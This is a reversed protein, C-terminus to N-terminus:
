KNRIRTKNSIVKGIKRKRKTRKSRYHKPKEYVYLTDVKNGRTPRLNYRPETINKTVENLTSIPMKDNVELEVNIPEPSTFADNVEENTTESDIVVTKNVSDNPTKSPSRSVIRVMPLLTSLKNPKDKTFGHKKYYKISNSVSELTIKDKKKNKALSYIIPLIDQANPKTGDISDFMQNRCFSNIYILDDQVYFVMIAIPNNNTSCKILCYTEDSILYHILYKDNMGSNLGPSCFTKGTLNRQIENNSNLYRLISLFKLTKRNLFNCDNLNEVLYDTYENKIDYPSCVFYKIDNNSM